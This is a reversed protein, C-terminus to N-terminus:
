QQYKSRRLRVSKDRKQLKVLGSIIVPRSAPSERYSLFRSALCYFSTSMTQIETLFASPGVPWLLFLPLTHSDIGPRGVFYIQSRALVRSMKVALM